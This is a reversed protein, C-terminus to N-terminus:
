SPSRGEKIERGREKLPSPTLPTLYIFLRFIARIGGDISYESM